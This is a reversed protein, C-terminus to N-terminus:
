FLKNIEDYNFKNPYIEKVLPLLYEIDFFGGYVTTGLLFLFVYFKKDKNEFRDNNKIYNIFDRFMINNKENIKELVFLLEEKNDINKEAFEIAKDLIKKKKDLNILQSCEEPMDLFSKINCMEEDLDECEDDILLNACKSWYKNNMLDPSKLLYKISMEKRKFQLIPNQIIGKFLKKISPNEYLKKIKKSSSILEFPNGIFNLKEKYYLGIFRIISLVVNISSINDIIARYSQILDGSVLIYNDKDMQKIEEIYYIDRAEKFSLIIKFVKRHLETEGSKVFFNKFFKDKSENFKGVINAIKINQLDMVFQEPLKEELKPNEKLVSLTEEIYKLLKIYEEFVEDKKSFKNYNLIKNRSIPLFGIKIAEILYQEKLKGDELFDDKIDITSSKLFRECNLIFTEKNKTLNFIVKLKDKMEQNNTSVDYIATYNSLDQIRINEKVLQYKDTLISKENNALKIFYNHLVAELKEPASDNPIEIEKGNIMDYFTKGKVLHKKNDHLFDLALLGDMLNEDLMKLIKNENKLDIYKIKYKNYLRFYDKM